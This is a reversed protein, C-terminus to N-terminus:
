RLRERIDDEELRPADHGAMRSEIVEWNDPFVLDLPRDGHWPYALVRIKNVSM